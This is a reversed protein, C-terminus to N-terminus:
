VLPVAHALAATLWFSVQWMDCGRAGGAVRLAYLEVPRLRWASRCRTFAHQACSGHVHASRTGDDDMAQDGDSSGEHDSMTRTAHGGSGSTIVQLCACRAIRRCM